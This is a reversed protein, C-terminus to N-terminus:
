SRASRASFQDEIAHETLQKHLTNRNIGLLRAAQSQNGGTKRLVAEILVREVCRIAANYLNTRASSTIGHVWECLRHELEKSARLGGQREAPAKRFTM